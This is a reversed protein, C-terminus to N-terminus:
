WINSQKTTKQGGWDIGALWFLHIVMRFNM